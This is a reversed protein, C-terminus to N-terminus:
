LLHKIMEPSPMSVYHRLSLPLSTEAAKHYKSSKLHIDFLESLSTTCIIFAFFHVSICFLLWMCSNGQKSNELKCFVSSVQLAAM